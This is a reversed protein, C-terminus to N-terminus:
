APLEVRVSTGAGPASTVVCSGGSAAVRQRMGPLGYGEHREAPDFGCGDDSVTLVIRDEVRSLGIQVKQASSHKGANALAEQASRLLIVDVDPACAGEATVDLLVPVGTNRTHRAALRGLADALGHDALDPPALASVLARAEDLGDRATVEILELREAVAASDRDLASRAAQALLVLSAFGQALTDHIGGALRAREAYVGAEHREEALALRTRTLEGILDARRRSQVIIGTIFLGMAMAAVFPFAISLGVSELTSWSAGLHYVFGMSAEAAFTVMFAVRVRWSYHLVFVQPYVTFLLFAAGPSLALMVAFSVAAGVLYVLGARQDDGRVARVGFALYWGVLGVLATGGLWRASPSVAADAVLVVVGALTVTAAFLVHWGAAYRRWFDVETETLPGGPGDLPVDAPV